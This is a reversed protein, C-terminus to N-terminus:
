SARGRNIWSCILYLEIGPRRAVKAVSVKVNKAAQSSLKNWGNMPFERGVYLSKLEKNYMHVCLM